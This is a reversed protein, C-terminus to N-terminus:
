ISWNKWILYYYSLNKNLTEYIIDIPM